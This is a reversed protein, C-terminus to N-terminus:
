ATCTIIYIFYLEKIDKLCRGVVVALRNQLFLTEKEM